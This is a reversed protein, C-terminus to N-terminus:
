QRAPQANLERELPFKICFSDVVVNAVDIAAAAPLPYQGVLLMKVLGLWYTQLDFDSVYEPSQTINLFDDM